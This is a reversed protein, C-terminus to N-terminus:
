STARYRVFVWCLVVSKMIWLKVLALGRKTSTYSVHTFRLSRMNWGQCSYLCTTHHYATDFPSWCLCVITLFRFDRELNLFQQFTNNNNKCQHTCSLERTLISSLVCAFDGTTLVHGRALKTLLCKCRSWMSDALLYLVHLVFLVCPTCLRWDCTRRNPRPPIRSANVIIEHWCSARRFREGSFLCFVCSDCHRRLAPDELRFRRCIVRRSKCILVM